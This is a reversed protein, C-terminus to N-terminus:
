DEPSHGIAAYFGAKDAPSVMVCRGSGYNIRVRDLSLAPSSLPNRTEVVSSIEALPVTWRFLGCVIQLEERDVRYRTRLFMVLILAFALVVVILGIYEEAGRPENRLLQLAVFVQTALLALMLLAVWWDIKSRFVKEM